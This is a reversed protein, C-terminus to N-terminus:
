HSFVSVKKSRIQQKFTNSTMYGNANSSTFNFLNSAFKSSKTAYIETSNTTSDM